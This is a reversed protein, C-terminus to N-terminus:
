ASRREFAVKPATQIGPDEDNYFPEENFGLPRAFLVDPFSQVRTNLDRVTANYYRRAAQLEGELESLEDSLQRFNTDAKLEPYAEAVAMLRGLLGSFAVDAAATQTVSGARVPDGRHAIVQDLTEREHTAYGQVSEVLNPVLDARRRLQVTIGSFGERALARLRVLRNYVGIAYLLALVAVGLVIWGVLDM